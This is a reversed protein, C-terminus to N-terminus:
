TGKETVEPKTPSDAALTREIRDLASDQLGIRKLLEVMAASVDQATQATYQNLLEMREAQRDDKNAIQRIADAMDQNSIATKEMVGILRNLLVILTIAIVFEAGFSKILGVALVPNSKLFEFFEYVAVGGGTIGTGLALKAIFGEREEQLMNKIALFM